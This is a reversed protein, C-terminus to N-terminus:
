VNKEGKLSKPTFAGPLLKEVTTLQYEEKENALIVQTDQDLFEAIVQRCAGCPSALLDGKCIIAITKFDTIGESVAKFLATREACNTLGYSANEINCGTIINDDKTLLAAGVPYKSYPVYAYGMAKKAAKVLDRIIKDEM